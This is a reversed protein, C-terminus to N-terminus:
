FSEFKAKIAEAATLLDKLDKEIQELNVKKERNEKAVQTKDQQLRQKEAELREREKLEFRLRALMLKHEDALDEEEKEGPPSADTDMEEGGDRSAHLQHFEQLDQLEIDQFISQFEQCVKVELELMSEEYKLNQLALRATDVKAREDAVLAKQTSLDNYIQRNVRKLKSFLPTSASLLQLASSTAETTTLTSEDSLPQKLDSLQSLSELARKLEEETSQM